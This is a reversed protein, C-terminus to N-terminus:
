ASNRAEIYNPRITNDQAAIFLSETERKLNGKKALDLNEGTLHTNILIKSHNEEWKQKRSVTMRNDMTNDTDNRIATMM